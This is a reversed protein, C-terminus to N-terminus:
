KQQSNIQSWLFVWMQISASFIPPKSFENVLYERIKQPFYNNYYFFSHNTKQLYTHSSHLRLSLKNLRTIMCHINYKTLTM